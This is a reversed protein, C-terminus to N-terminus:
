FQFYVFASADGMGLLTIWSIAIILVSYIYVSVRQCFLSNTETKSLSVPLAHETEGDYKGFNYMFCMAAISLIIQLASAFNMDLAKFSASFYESRFGAATFIKAYLAGAQSISQARFLVAGFMCLIFTFSRRILKYAANETNLGIKEKLRSLPKKLLNELCIIFAVYLGWVLYTWNAGHWLGCLAFVIVTNLLKRAMGKRNGGLPIYLYQTFWRTLTIHWRRFFQTFSVSLYPRDFNETLKVGFMRAVGIAIESYGAFDCYMQVCFLAAAILVAFSNAGGVNGFVNSVYIGCFDAVVCKRFYGVLAIRLGALLDQSNIKREARLQPLLDGPKEIPGAVLQPFYSVFLMYYGLHKEAKFDGRYVDIVYSLTQFTYFSIGVPLIINLSFDKIGLSFLNLFDIVSGCLFNFYKFFVLAGLSVILAVSLFFKKLHVNSAKEIGIATGYSVLTTGLILFILYPNWSIYFIYSAILLVIWRFKHPILWHLILTVALFILFYLSNFNM